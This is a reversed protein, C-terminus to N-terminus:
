GRIGNVAPPQEQAKKTMLKQLVQFLAQRAAPNSGIVNLGKKAVNAAVGTGVTLPLASLLPSMALAALPHGATAFGMATGSRLVAPTASKNQPLLSLFSERLKSFSVDKQAALVDPAKEAVIREAKKADQSYIFRASGKAKRALEGAAKKWALAEGVTLDKADKFKAAMEDAVRKFGSPDGIGAVLREEEETVGAANKAEQFIKGSNKSLKSFLVEMPKKVTAIVNEAPVGTAVQVGRAAQRGLFNMPIAGVKAVGKVALGLPENLIAAAPDAVGAAFDAVHEGVGEPKFEPKTAEAGRQLGSTATVGLGRIGRMPTEILNHMTELNQPDKLDLPTQIPGQNLATKAALMAVDGMTSPEVGRRKLEADIEDLGPSSTQARVALERDIDELSLAM